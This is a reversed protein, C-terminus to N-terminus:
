RKTKSDSSPGLRVPAVDGDLCMLRLTDLTVSVVESIHPRCIVGALAEAGRVQDSLLQRRLEFDHSLRFICTVCKLLLEEDRIFRCACTLVQAGGLAIIRQRHAAGGRSLAELQEILTGFCRATALVQDQRVQTEEIQALAATKGREIHALHTFGVADTVKAPRKKKGGKSLPESLVQEWGARTDHGRQGRFLM